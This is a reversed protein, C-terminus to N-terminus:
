SSIKSKLLKNLEEHLKISFGHVFRKNDIGLIWQIGQEESAFFLEDMSFLHSKEIGQMEIIKLKESKALDMVISRLTDEYCGSNLSPSILVNDKLMFINSGLGECIENKENLLISGQYQSDKIQAKASNWISLNHCKLKNLRLESNKKFESFNVLMGQNSIPFEFESFAMSTIVSNVTNLSIFFQFNILGSRYFKNKNLMRKTLRFLERKNKFLAPLPLAFTDLQKELCELNENFLPIGGYGFWVKQSLLFPEDWFFGTLNAEQKSVVKGNIILFDM